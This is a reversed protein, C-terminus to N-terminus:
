ADGPEAADDQEQDTTRPESIIRVEGSDLDYLLRRGEMETGDRQQLVVPAGSIVALRDAPTYVVESGRVSRGNVPDDVEANGECLLTEIRHGPDMAVELDDCRLSRGAEHVRVSRSYSLLREGREYAFEEANVEIARRDGEDEPKPKWVTKVAGEGELREGDGVVRLRDALLFSEGQWARVEGFFTVEPPEDRWTAAEATVLVPARIDGTALEVGSRELGRARIGGTARLSGGGPSYVIEPAEVENDDALLRAPAGTLRMQDEPNGTLRDGSASLGAAHYAVGGEVRVREMRGDPGAEAQLSDGCLRRLLPAGPLALREELVAPVLTELSSVAGETFTTFIMQSGITQLLGAGDDFRLVAPGKEGGELVVSEIEDGASDFAVGIQAAEFELERARDSGTDLALRGVVQWRGQIFRAGLPGGEDAAFSVSLRRSTLLDDGRQFRVGGVMRLLAEEERYFMRAASLRIPPETAPPSEIVVQGTLLLNHRHLNLRVSDATGTYNGTLRYAVPTSTSVLIRGGNRLEFAEGRLEVGDPAAMVVSGELIADRSDLDYTARESSVTYLDGNEEEMRLEVGELVFRDDRDSVMRESRIFFLTQGEDIVDYQFGEAELVVDLRDLPSAADDSASRPASPDPDRAKYIWLVAAGGALLLGLFIWRLVILPRHGPGRAM